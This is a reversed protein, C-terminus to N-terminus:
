AAKQPAKRELRAILTNVDGVKLGAHALAASYRDRWQELTRAAQRCHEAIHDPDDPDTLVYGGGHRRNDMPSIVMPIPHEKVRVSHPGVVEEVRFSVRLDRAFDRAQELQYAAAAKGEDWEFWAYAPHKDGTRKVDDLFLAPNFVGNHKTAFDKVIKERLTKTFNAM